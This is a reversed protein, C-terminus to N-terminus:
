QAATVLNRRENEGELVFDAIVWERSIEIALRMEFEPHSGL